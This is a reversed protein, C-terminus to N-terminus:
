GNKNGEGNIEKLAGEDEKGREGDEIERGGEVGGVGLRDWM